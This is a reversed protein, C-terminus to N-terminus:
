KEGKRAELSKVAFLGDKFFRVTLIMDKKSRSLAALEAELEPADLENLYFFSFPLTFRFANKKKGKPGYARRVNGVKVFIENPAIESRADTLRVARAFGDDKRELVLFAKERRYFTKGEPVAIEDPFVILRVYRGRLPDYPDFARVSFKMEVPPERPFEIKVIMAAPYWLIAALSLTFLFLRLSRRMKM